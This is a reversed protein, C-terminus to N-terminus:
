LNEVFFKAVIGAAENVRVAVADDMDFTFAKELPGRAGLFGHFLDDFRLFVNKAAFPKADLAEKVDLLPAEDKSLLLCVPGTAAAGDEATLFSPHPSAASQVTGDALARLAIKGGWCLGVAGISQVGLRKLLEAARKVIALFPPVNTIRAYFSQWAPSQFGDKPPFDSAPWETGGPFFDPMVVTFGAGALYDAFQFANPHRSFIDTIFIIGRPGSGTIYFDAGAATYGSAVPKVTTPCCSM